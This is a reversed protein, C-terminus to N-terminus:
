QTTGTQTPRPAFTSIRQLQEVLQQEEPTLQAPVDVRVRAYMDGRKADNGPGHSM